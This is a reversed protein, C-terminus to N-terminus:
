HLVPGRTQPREAGRRPTWAVAAVGAVRAGGARLVACAEAASAGTTVVDDVVVVLRRAPRAGSRLAFAGTVNARRGAAGLGAQDAVRRRQRLMRAVETPVGARALERRAARALAAAVDTGRARLAAGSSPVPVLLVVAGPPAGGCAALLAAVSAALAGGLPRTLDLRGRDKWAVVCRAVPGEYCACAWVPAPVAVAVAVPPVRLRSRCAPCLAADAASCGACDVPVVLGLLAEAGSRLARV